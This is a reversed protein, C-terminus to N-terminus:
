SGGIEAVAACLAALTSLVEGGGSVTPGKDHMFFGGLNTVAESARDVVDSLDTLKEEAGPIFQRIPELSVDQMGDVSLAYKRCAEVHSTLERVEAHLVSVDVKCGDALAARLSTRGDVPATSTLQLYLQPQQAKVLAAAYGLLCKCRKFQRLRDAVAADGAAAAANDVATAPAVAHSLTKVWENVPFGKAGRLAASGVNLHNGARLLHGLLADIAESTIARKAADGIISAASKVDAVGRDYRITCLWVQLRTQMRSDAACLSVFQVPTAAATLTPPKMMHPYDEEYKRV